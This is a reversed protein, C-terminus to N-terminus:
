LDLEMGNSEIGHILIMCVFKSVLLLRSSSFMPASNCPQVNLHLLYNESVYNYYMRTISKTKDLSPKQSSSIASGRILTALSCSTLWTLFMALMALAGKFYAHFHVRFM